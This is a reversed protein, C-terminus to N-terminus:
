HNVFYHISLMLVSTRFQKPNSPNIKRIYDQEQLTAYDEQCVTPQYLLIDDVYLILQSMGEPFPVKLVGDIYM